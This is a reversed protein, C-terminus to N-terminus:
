VSNGYFYYSDDETDFAIVYKNMEYWRDDIDISRDIQRSDILPGTFKSPNQKATPKETTKDDNKLFQINM